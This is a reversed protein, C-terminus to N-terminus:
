TAYRRGVAAKKRETRWLLGLTVVIAIFAFLISGLNTLNQGGKLAIGTLNCGGYGNGGRAKSESFLNCVPLTSGLSGSDRCFNQFEGYKSPM